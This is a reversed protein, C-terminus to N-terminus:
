DFSFGSIRRDTALFTRDATILSGPVGPDGEALRGLADDKGAGTVLFLREHARNILPVTMTWRRTGKYEATIALDGDADLVPDGPVLSATHGDDGLGLQILDLRAPTGTLRELDTLHDVLASGQDDTEVPMPHYHVAPVHDVFRHRIMTDNRDNSGAPAIREDVQFLHVASWDVRDHITLADLFLAPTSGGSVAWVFRGDREIAEVARAAVWAAADDAAGQATASLRVRISSTM